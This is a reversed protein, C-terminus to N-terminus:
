YLFSLSSTQKDLVQTLKILWKLLYTQIPFVLMSNFGDFCVIENNMTLKHSSMSDIIGTRCTCMEPITAKVCVVYGLFTRSLKL